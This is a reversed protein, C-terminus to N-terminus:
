KWLNNLKVPYENPNEQLYKRQLIEADYDHELLAIKLDHKMQLPKIAHEQVYTEIAAEMTSTFGILGSKMEDLQIQYQEIKKNMEQLRCHVLDEYTHHEDEENVKMTTTTTTNNPQTPVASKVQMPWVRRDVAILEAEPEKLKGTGSRLYITSIQKQINLAAINHKLITVQRIDNISISSTTNIVNQIMYDFSENTAWLYAPIQDQKKGNYDNDDNDKAVKIKKSVSEPSSRTSSRRRKDTVSSEQEDESKTSLQSFKQSLVKEEM